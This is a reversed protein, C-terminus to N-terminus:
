RYTNKRNKGITNSCSKLKCYAMSISRTKAHIKEFKFYMQEKQKM